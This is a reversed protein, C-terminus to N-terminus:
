KRKREKVENSLFFIKKGKQKKINKRGQILNIV